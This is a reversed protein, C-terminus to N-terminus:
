ILQVSMLTTDIKENLERCSLLYAYKEFHHAGKFTYDTILVLSFGAKVGKQYVSLKINLRNSLSMM